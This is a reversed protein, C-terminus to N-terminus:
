RPASAAVGQVEFEIRGYAAASDIAVLDQPGPRDFVQEFAREAPLRALLRGNLLWAVEGSAGAARLVLRPPQANGAAARLRSGAQVGIIRLAATPSAAACDAALPPPYARAREQASLWPAALRPWTAFLQRREDGRRCDGQRRLGSRADILVTQLQPPPEGAAGLSLPTSGAIRLAPLQRHCHAPETDELDGGLPWCATFTEVENAPAPATQRYALPLGQLAARLLPLATVAGFQGPSPTGDPRGIWVGLTVAPTGGLAWSDRFGYSTGTKAAIREGAARAFREDEQANSSRLVEAVIHAAGPSLLRRERLRDEPRLRPQVALGRRHLAAYAGVLDELRVETGGLVLSLNPREASPLRLRLGAHQLRAAFRAPGLQQLLAVAPVNLSQQLAHALSIPGRFRQDFNDPRYGDFDQPADILLSGSHVLGADIALGYAFPKLTSGPSRWARVMDLHGFREGDGFRASGVYARVEGSANDILLLAASSREPLRQTWVEVLQELRLQLEADIGTRIRPSRPHARRLREALLAAQQPVALSRALVTERRAQEAQAANIAGFAALRGLVKDRAAQARQPHRDPRLRSPAQPLVALLASEAQSLERSSKGLYAWAAAEVGEIPGGFPAHNLYLELVGRKGLRWELQLARLAQRLKGGLGPSQPEILRAAQMSLTSAGSISRGHRLWQGAARLVALPNVGGHRWFWRDEYGILADVYLPSVDELRVRMRWRGERDPFARLPSGDRALVVTAASQDPDPIPPPLLRDLLLLLLTALLWAGFMAAFSSPAIRPLASRIPMATM